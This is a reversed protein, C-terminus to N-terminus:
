IPAACANASKAAMTKRIHFTMAREGIDRFDLRLDREGHRPRRAGDVGPESQQHNRAALLHRRGLMDAREDGMFHEGIAGIEVVSPQLRAVLLAGDDFIGIPGGRTRECHELLLRDDGLAALAQGRRDFEIQTCPSVPCATSM